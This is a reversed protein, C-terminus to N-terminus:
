SRFAKGAPIRQGPFQPLLVLDPAVAEVAGGVSVQSVLCGLHKVFRSVLQVDYREM